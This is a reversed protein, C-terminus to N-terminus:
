NRILNVMCSNLVPMTPTEDHAATVWAVFSIDNLDVTVGNPSGIIEPIEYEYSMTILNGEFCPGIPDGWPDTIMDRFVHKHNYQDGIWQSPNSHLADSQSGLINDQLMAVTLFNEDFGTDHTYYVKITISVKRNDYNLIGEGVINCEAEQLLQQQTMQHWEERSKVTNTSRNVLATPFAGITFPALIENGQSTVLNPYTTPGFESTHYSIVNVRGHFEDLIENIIRDGDPCYGCDRGGFDEILANRYTTETPVVLEQESSTVFEVEEGYSTGNKNIAYARVFYKTNMQLGTIYSEFWGTGMGDTTYKDYITPNKHTSWCVGRATVMEGADDMVEGGSRATNGTVDMVGMTEVTPLTINAPDTYFSKVDSSETNIGNSYEFKYYYKKDTALGVFNVIFMTDEVNANAVISYDFVPNACISTKVYQLSTPYSYKVKIEASTQSYAVNEKQIDITKVQLEPMKKCTVFAIVTLALLAIIATKKM